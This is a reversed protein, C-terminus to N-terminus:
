RESMFFRGKNIVGIAKGILSKGIFPSNKSKSQIDKETFIWNTTPDFITLNAVKGIEISIAQNDLLQRPKKTFKEILKEISLKSFTNAVAFATELGIIGFDALDFELNKSEEDQPSHDSVIVDITGDELGKQLAKIDNRSRFPPNVKLNTDFDMLDDDTFALQHAAIDCSVSLGKKKADRIL